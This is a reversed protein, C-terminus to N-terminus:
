SCEKSPCYSYVSTRMQHHVRKELFNRQICVILSIFENGELQRLDRWPPMSAHSEHQDTKMREHLLDSDQGEVMQRRGWCLAPQKLENFRVQDGARM